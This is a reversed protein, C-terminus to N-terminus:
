VEGICDRPSLARIWIVWCEATADGEFNLGNDVLMLNAHAKCKTSM